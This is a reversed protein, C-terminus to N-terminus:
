KPPLAPRKTTRLVKKSAFTMVNNHICILAFCADTKPDVDALHYSMGPLTHHLVTPKPVQKSVKVHAVFSELDGNWLIAYVFGKEPKQVSSLAWSIAMDIIVQDTIKFEISQFPEKLVNEVFWTFFEDTSAFTEPYYYNKDRKNLIVQLADKEKFRVCAYFCFHKIDYIVSMIEANKEYAPIPSCTGVTFNRDKGNVCITRSPVYYASFNVTATEEILGKRM